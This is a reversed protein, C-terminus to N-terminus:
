HNHHGAHRAKATAKKAEIEAAIARLRDALDADTDDGRLKEMEIEHLLRKAQRECLSLYAARLKSFVSVDCIKAKRKRLHEITWRGVGYEREFRGYANDVDDDTRAGSVIFDHVKSAFDYAAEVTMEPVSHETEPYTM